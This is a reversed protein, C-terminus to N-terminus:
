RDPGALPQWPLDPTLYSPKDRRYKACLDQELTTNPMASKGQASRSKFRHSRQRHNRSNM